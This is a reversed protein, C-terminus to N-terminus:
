FFIDTLDAHASFNLIVFIVKWTPLFKNKVELWAEKTNKGELLNMGFYFATISFPGYTFQELIAKTAAVRLSTGPILKSSLKVWAFVTPAVWFTGFLSFRALRLFDVTVQGRFSIPIFCSLLLYCNIVNSENM